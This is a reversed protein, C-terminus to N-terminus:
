VWVFFENPPEDDPPAINGDERVYYIFGLHSRRQESLVKESSGGGAEAIDIGSTPTLVHTTGDM